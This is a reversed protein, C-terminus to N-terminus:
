LCWSGDLQVKKTVRIISGPHTLCPEFEGVASGPPDLAEAIVAPLRIAQSLGARIGRAKQRRVANQIWMISLGERNRARGGELTPTKSDSTSLERASSRSHISEFVGHSSVMDRRKGTGPWERHRGDPNRIRGILKSRDAAKQGRRRLSYIAHTEPDGRQGSTAFGNFSGPMALTQTTEM